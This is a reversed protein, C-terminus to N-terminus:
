GQTNDQAVPTGAQTFGQRISLMSRSRNAQNVLLNSPVRGNLVEVLQDFLRHNGVDRMFENGLKDPPEVKSVDHRTTEVEDETAM